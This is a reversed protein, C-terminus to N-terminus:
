NTDLNHWWVITTIYNCSPLIGTKDLWFSWIEKRDTLQWNCDAIYKYM